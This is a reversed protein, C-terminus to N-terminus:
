TIKLKKCSLNELNKVNAKEYLACAFTMKDIGGPRLLEYEAPLDIGEGKILCNCPPANESLTFIIGPFFDCFPVEDPSLIVTSSVAKGNFSDRVPVTVGYEDLLEAATKEYISRKKTYVEIKGFLNVTKYIVDTYVAEADFVTLSSKTAPFHLSESYDCFSNFLLLAPLKGPHFELCRTTEDCPFNLDFIVSGKLKKLQEFVEETPIQGRYETAIVRYFYDGDSLNIRRIEIEPFSFLDRIFTKIGGPADKGEVTAFM